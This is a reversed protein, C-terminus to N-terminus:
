LLKQRGDKSLVVTVSQTKRFVFFRAGRGMARQENQPLPFIESRFFKLFTSGM